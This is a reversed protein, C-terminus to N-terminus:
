QQRGVMEMPVHKNAFANSPLRQTYKSLLFRNGLLPHQVVMEEKRDRGDKKPWGEDPGSQGRDKTIHQDVTL